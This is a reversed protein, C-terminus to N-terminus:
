LNANCFTENSVCKWKAGMNYLEHLNKHHWHHEVQEGVPSKTEYRTGQDQRLPISIPGRRPTGGPWTQHYEKTRNQYVEQISLHLLTDLPYGGFFVGTFVNSERTSRVHATVFFTERFYQVKVGSKRWEFVTCFHYKSQKVNWNESLKLNMLSLFAKLRLRVM